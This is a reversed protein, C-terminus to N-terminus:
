PPPAGSEHEERATRDKEKEEIVHQKGPELRAQIRLAAAGLRDAHGRKTRYDIWGRAEMKLLARDLALLVLAAAVIGPVVIGASGM